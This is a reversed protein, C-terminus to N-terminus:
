KQGLRGEGFLQALDQSFNIFALQYILFERLARRAKGVFVTIVLDKGLLQKPARNLASM